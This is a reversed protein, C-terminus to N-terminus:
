EYGSRFLDARPPWLIALGFFATEIATMRVSWLFGQQLPFVDIKKDFLELPTVELGCCSVTRDMTFLGKLSFPLNAAVWM